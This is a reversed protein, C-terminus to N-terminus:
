PKRCEPQMVALARELPTMEAHDGGPQMAANWADELPTTKLQIGGPQMAANQNEELPIIEPQGGGPQMAANLTEESAEATEPGAARVFIVKDGPSLKTAATTRKSVDFEKGAVLKSRFLM